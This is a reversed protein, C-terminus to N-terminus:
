GVLGEKKIRAGGHPVAVGWAGSRDTVLVPRHKEFTHVYEVVDRDAGKKTLYPLYPIPGLPVLVGRPDVMQMRTVRRRAGKGWHLREYEEFAEAADYPDVPGKPNARKDVAASLKRSFIGTSLLAGGAGIAVDLASLEEDTLRKVIGLPGFEGRLVSRFLLVPVPEKKQGAKWGLLGRIADAQREYFKAGKAILSGRKGGKRTPPNPCAQASREEMERVLADTKDELVDLVEGPHNEAYLLFAETRSMRPTGKISRGVRNFLPVLDPPLNTRVEDDSESAREAATKQKPIARKRERQSKEIARISRQYGLEAALAARASAESDKLDHAAVLDASCSARAAERELRVAENLARLGDARMNRARERAALRESKCREKASKMAARRAATVARLGGRMGKVKARAEKKQEREIQKWLKRKDLAVPSPNGRRSEWWERCTVCTPKDQPAQTFIWGHRRRSAGCIPKNDPGRVHEKPLRSGSVGGGVGRGRGM